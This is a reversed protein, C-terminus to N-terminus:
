EAVYRPYSVKAAKAQDLDIDVTAFPADPSTTALVEGEPDIVWGLGGLNQAAGAPAYLNSSLCFAGSCVAAARGGALWKDTTGHPTARPVCLLDARSKAYARAHEFFWMDTCTMVGIRMGLARAMGFQGNGREYWSAEWYGPEDPLYYKDHIASAEARSETWLYSQNRRSGAQTLIPRTGVIAKAGLQTLEAIQAKHAMVARGWALQAAAESEPKDSALWPSFCMEPMLVFQSQEAEVHAKLAKLEAGLTEDSPNLQCVTVKM